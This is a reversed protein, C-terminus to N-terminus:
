KVQEQLEKKLSDIQQQLKMNQQQLSVLNLRYVNTLSFFYTMLASNEDPKASFEKRLISDIQHPSFKSYVSTMYFIMEEKLFRNVPMYKYEPNQNFFDIKSMFQEINRVFEIIDTLWKNLYKDLQITVQDNALSDSRVRYINVINPIRVIKEALCVCYFSFLTDDRVRMGKPFRINNELLFDRRYLKDWPYESYRKKTWEEVRKALDLKDITPKDVFKNGLMISKKILPTNEDIIDDTSKAEFHREAHVIDAQTEEAIGHLEELATKTFLDDTDILAIYKGRSLSLGTNRPVIAGGSNKKLKVLKLRGDFKPIYSEVIEASKDTSCDDTIIFEFDEFTQCLVSELCQGIYKEVNYMPAIISIAPLHESKFESM